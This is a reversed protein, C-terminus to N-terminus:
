EKARGDGKSGYEINIVITDLSKLQLLLSARYTIKFFLSKEDRSPQRV